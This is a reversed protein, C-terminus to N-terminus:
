IFGASIIQFSIYTHHSRSASQLQFQPTFILLKRSSQSKPLPSLPIQVSSFSMRRGRFHSLCANRTSFCPRSATIKVPFLSMKVTPCCLKELVNSGFFPRKLFVDMKRGISHHQIAGSICHWIHVIEFNASQGPWDPFSSNIGRYPPYRHTLLIGRNRSKLPLYVLSSSRCISWHAPSSPMSTIGQM